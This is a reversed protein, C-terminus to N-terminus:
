QAPELQGNPWRVRQTTGKGPASELVFTAGSLEARERMSVLGLGSKAKSSDSITRQPDFGKGNDEIYLELADADRRLTISMVTAGSHKIINNLAEQVIRFIVLKIAVPIHEEKADLQLLIRLGTYVRSSERCFWTLTALIGIDDLISPRLAMSIRRVEEIADQIRPIVSELQQVNEVTPAEHLHKISTEVCFKVASLTQGIGDHLEAAVRQREKEQASIVKDSLLRLRNKSDRLALEAHVRASIDAVVAFSGIMKGEHDLLPSPSTQVWIGSKRRGRLKLEHSTSRGTKLKKIQEIWVPHSSEDIFATAPQGIIEERMHELMKCFRDNVYTILGQQDCVLLGENMTEVLLRYEERSTRLEDEIRTRDEIEQRLRLNAAVLDFTRAAVRKELEQNMAQLRNEADKLESIDTAVAVGFIGQIKSIWAHHPHHSQFSLQLHRHLHRDEIQYEAPKGIEALISASEWFKKLACHVDHCSAHLLEHMKKGRVDAVQGLGWREVTRNARLIHGSEDLLCVLQPLSDATSEWEQKALEVREVNEFHCAPNPCNKPYDLDEPTQGAQMAHSSVNDTVIKRVM